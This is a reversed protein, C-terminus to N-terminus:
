YPITVCICPVRSFLCYSSLLHTCTVVFIQPLSPLYNWCSYLHVGVHVHVPLYHLRHPTSYINCVLNRIMSLARKQEESGDLGIIDALSRFHAMRTAYTGENFEQRQSETWFHQSLLKHPYMFRCHVLGIPHLTYVVTSWMLTLKWSIEFNLSARVRLVLNNFSLIKFYWTDVLIEEDSCQSLKCTGVHLQVVNLYM